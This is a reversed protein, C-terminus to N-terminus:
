LKIEYLALFYLTMGYFAITLSISITLSFYFNIGMNILIPLSIFLTLSPITMWFISISLHKIKDINNTEFYLWIMSLISILPISAIVGGFFTNKKAIESILIIISASVIIKIFYSM